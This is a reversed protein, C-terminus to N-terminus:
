TFSRETVSPWSESFYAVAGPRRYLYWALGVLVPLLVTVALTVDLFDTGGVGTLVPGFAALAFPFLAAPRAWRRRQGLALAAGVVALEMPVLAPLVAALADGRAVSEGKVMVPGEGVALGVILLLIAGAWFWFVWILLSIGLPRAPPESM